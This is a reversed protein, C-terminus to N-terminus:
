VVSKRDPNLCLPDPGLVADDGSQRRLSYLQQELAHKANEGPSEPWLYGVVKDRTLGREGAAALLALLALRRRATPVQGGAADILRLGGFTELRLM